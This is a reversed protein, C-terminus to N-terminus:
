GVYASEPRTGTSGAPRKEVEEPEFFDARAASDLHVTIRYAFVQLVHGEGEPTVVSDGRHLQRHLTLRRLLAGAHQQVARQVDPTLAERRGAIRLRSGAAYVAVGRAQLTRTLDPLNM